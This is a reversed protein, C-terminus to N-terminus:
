DYQKEYLSQHGADLAYCGEVFTLKNGDPEIFEKRSNDGDYVIRSTFQGAPFVLCVSKQVTSDSVINYNGSKTLQGNTYIKYTTATFELRNGNGAAYNVAGPVMAASTQRLEWIGIITTEDGDKSANKKCSGLFVICSAILLLTKAQKMKKNVFMSLCSNLLTAYQIGSVLHLICSVPHWIGSAALRTDPMRCGTDPM